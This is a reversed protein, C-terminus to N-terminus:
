SPNNGNISIVSDAASSSTVKVEFSNKSPLSLVTCSSAATPPSTWGYRYTISSIVLVATPVLCKNEVETALATMDINPTESYIATLVKYVNASHMQVARKNAAMRAGLLQPILVSALIGIIAIVILLEILTFGQDFAKM